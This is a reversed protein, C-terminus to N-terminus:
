SEYNQWQLALDVVVLELLAANYKSRAQYLKGRTNHM